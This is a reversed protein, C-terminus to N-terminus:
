AITWLRTVSSKSFLTSYKANAGSSHCFAEVAFCDYDNPISRRRRLAKSGWLICPAIMEVRVVAVGTTERSTLLKIQLCFGALELYDYISAIGRSIAEVNGSAVPQPRRATDLMRQYIRKGVDCRWADLIDQPTDLRNLDRRVVRTGFNGNEDGYREQFVIRPERIFFQVTLMQAYSIFDFYRPDTIIGQRMGLNDQIFKEWESSRIEFFQAQFEDMPVFDLADVVNYGARMLLVAFDQDLTKRALVVPAPPPNLVESLSDRIISFVNPRNADRRSSIDVDEM